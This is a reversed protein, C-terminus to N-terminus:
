FILRTFTVRFHLLSAQKDEIYFKICLFFVHSDFEYLNLKFFNEVWNAFGLIGVIELSSNCVYTDIDGAMVNNTGATTFNPNKNKNDNRPM